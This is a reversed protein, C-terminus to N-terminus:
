DFTVGLVEVEVPSGILKFVEFRRPQRCARSQTAGAIPRAAASSAVSLFGILREKSNGLHRRRAALQLITSSLALFQPLVVDSGISHDAM